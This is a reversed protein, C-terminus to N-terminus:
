IEKMRSRLLRLHRRHAQSARILGTKLGRREDRSLNQRKELEKKAVLGLKRSAMRVPEIEERVRSTSQSWFGRIRLRTKIDLVM